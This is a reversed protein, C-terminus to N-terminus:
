KTYHEIWSTIEQLRKIRHKPKGSRSLEHNEGKFWVFRAPVGKEQLATYMQLGQDIPCRYDEDSHIFLTPTVVNRVYKLPSQRWLSEQGNFVNGATQDEAFYIGIDAVGYFSFWNSISRQTAACAFRDTHGIIWNTMFGGYSGGTVGLRKQDIQPYAELVADTFSMLDAYDVTGYKGRIDLFANGRGDSGTPNCFFVVYGRAVWTQMEHYFVPGYVTKPGGHIDLVGPYTGNPDFNEPLLVWGDIRKGKSRASLPHPHAVYKEALAQANLDTLKRPAKGRVVEYLEQLEMHYLGVGIIKGDGTIAFCDLSGEEQSLVATKGASDMRRLQIGGGVTCTYYLQDRFVRFCRGGGLRCDSGVSSGFGVDPDRLLTLAGNELTYFGMNQNLGAKAHDTALVVLKDGLQFAGGFDFNTGGYLTRIEETAPDYAYLQSTLAETNRHKAACFVIEDGCKVAFSVNQEPATIRKVAGSVDGTFLATGQGECFGAGNFRYTTDTLIHYDENEKREKAIREREEQSAKYEDPYTRDIPATFFWLKENLQELKGCPVPLEFARQAEGGTLDLRYWISFREGKQARAQDKEERMAPFLIHTDDEWVAASSKGDATLRRLSGDYLYLDSSYDNEEERAQRVTFVVRTGRAEVNSLFRYTLLDRLEIKEM